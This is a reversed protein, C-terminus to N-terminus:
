YVKEGKKLYRSWAKSYAHVKKTPKGESNQLPYSQNSWEFIGGYLNKVDPIGKKKLRDAIAESRVGISCYVVVSKNLAAISDIHKWSFESFGVYVADPIHSVAYEEAERADLFVLSDRLQFMRAEQVSIFPVNGQTNKQIADDLETQGFSGLSWLSIFLLLYKM